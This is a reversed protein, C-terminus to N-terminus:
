DDDSDCGIDELNFAMIRNMKNRPAKMAYNYDASSEGARQSSVFKASPSVGVQVMDAEDFKLGM